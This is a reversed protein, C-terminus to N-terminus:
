EPEDVSGRTDVITNLNLAELPWLEKEIDRRMQAMRENLCAFCLARGPEVFDLECDPCKEV